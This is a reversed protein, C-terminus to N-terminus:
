WGCARPLESILVSIGCLQEKEGSRMSFSAANTTGTGPKVEQAQSYFHAILGWKGYEEEPSSGKHTKDLGPPGEM